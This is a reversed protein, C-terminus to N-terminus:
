KLNAVYAQIRDYNGPVQGESELESGDQYYCFGPAEGAPFEIEINRARRYWEVQVGGGSLPVVSPAPADNEMVEVLVM